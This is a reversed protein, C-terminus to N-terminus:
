AETEKKNQEALMKRKCRYFENDRRSAEPDSRYQRRRRLQMQVRHAAYYRANKTRIDRHSEKEKRRQAALGDFWGKHKYSAAFCAESCFYTSAQRKGDRPIQRLWPTDATTTIMRGCTGCSRHMTLRNTTKKRVSM